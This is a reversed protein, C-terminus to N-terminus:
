GVDERFRDAMEPRLELRLKRKWFDQEWEPPIKVAMEPVALDDLEPDEEEDEELESEVFETLNLAAKYMMIDAITSAHLRSRRSTAVRGASSFLREVSSGSAPVPLTDRAMKALDPFSPGHVKWYGLASKISTDNPIDMYRKHDDGRFRKAARKALLAEFEDDDNDDAPRKLGRSTAAVTGNSKYEEEFRRRFGETYPTSDVDSWTPESFISLKCRPNLIMADSYVFPVSTKDYYENLKAKMEELATVFVPACALSGLAEPVGLSFLVDEIHNFLRDYAFFLYDIEPTQKNSEFRATVRKFPLLFIYLVELLDWEQDTMACRKHFPEEDTRTDRNDGEDQEMAFLFRAIPKRLYVAAELMHLMSNWRVKVDLPITRPNVHLDKCAQAFKEWRLTSKRIGKALTRIKTLVQTFDIGTENDYIKKIFAQVAL